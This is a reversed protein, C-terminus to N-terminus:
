AWQAGRIGCMRLMENLQGIHHQNHRLLYLMRGLVTGGTWPFARNEALLEDDAAKPLWANMRRQVEDLYALVDPQLPLDKPLAAEWDVGFRARWPFGEPSSRLYFDATEVTHIAWRAPVDRSREGARWCDEPFVTIVERLTGWGRTFQEALTPGLTAPAAEEVERIALMQASKM